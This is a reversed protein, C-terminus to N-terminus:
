IAQNRARLPATFRDFEERKIQRSADYLAGVSVLNNVTLTVNTELADLREQAVIDFSAHATNIELSRLTAFAVASLLTGAVVIGLSPVRRRVSGIFRSV